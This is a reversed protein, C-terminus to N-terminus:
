KGEGVLLSANVQEIRNVAQNIIEVVKAAEGKSLQQLVIKHRLLSKFKDVASEIENAFQNGARLEQAYKLKAKVENLIEVKLLLFCRGEPTIEYCKRGKATEEGISIFGLEELLTLTPYIVGPSPCYLGATSESIKKILEYGYNARDVLLHLIYIRLQKPNFMRRVSKGDCLCNEVSQKNEM